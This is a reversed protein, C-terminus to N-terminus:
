DTLLEGTCIPIIIRVYTEYLILPGDSLSASSNKGGSYYCM